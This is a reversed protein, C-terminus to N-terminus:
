LEYMLKVNSIRNFTQTDEAMSSVVLTQLEVLVRIDKYINVKQSNVSALSVNFKTRWSGGKEFGKM